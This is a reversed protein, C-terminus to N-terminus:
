GASQDAQVAAAIAPHAKAAADLWALGRRLEEPALSRGYDLVERRLAADYAHEQAKSYRGMIPSRALAEVQQLPVEVALHAFAKALEPAPADLFREFDIWLTRGAHAQAAETLAVMEAAWSMATLEGPSLEWLRWAPGGIARHLRRLRVQAMARLDNISNRAGFISALFPEAPACMLIARAQPDRALLHSALGSAISTGKILARQEPRWTRGWLATFQSLREAFREPSVVSEATDLEIEALALTRLPVPERLSFLRPHEGLLRSLLTSGVHSIHFIFDCGRAPAGPGLREMVAAWPTWEGTRGPPLARQDLFAAAKYEAESLRVLYAMDAMLEYSHPYIEPSAPTTM